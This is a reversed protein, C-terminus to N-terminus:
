WVGFAVYWERCAACWQGVVCVCWVKVRLGFVRLQWVVGFVCLGRAGYVETADVQQYFDLTPMGQGNFYIPVLNNTAQGSDCADGCVRRSDECLKLRLEGVDREEYTPLHPM